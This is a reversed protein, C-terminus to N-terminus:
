LKWESMCTSRDTVNNSVWMPLSALVNYLTLPDICMYYHTHLLIYYKIDELSKCVSVGLAAMPCLLSGTILAAIPQLLGMILMRYITAEFVISFRNNDATYLFGLWVTTLLDISYINYLIQHNCTYPLVKIIFHTFICFRDFLNSFLSITM